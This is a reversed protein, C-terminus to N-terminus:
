ERRSPPLFDAIWENFDQAPDVRFPLLNIVPAHDKYRYKYRVYFEGGRRARLHALWYLGGGHWTSRRALRERVLEFDQALAGALAVRLRAAEATQAPTPEFKKATQATASGCLWLAALLPLVRFPTPAHTNRMRTAEETRTTEPAIISHGGAVSRAGRAPGRPM